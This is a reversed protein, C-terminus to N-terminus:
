ISVKIESKELHECNNAEHSRTHSKWYQKWYIRSSPSTLFFQVQKREAVDAVSCSPLVTVIRMRNQSPDKETLTCM